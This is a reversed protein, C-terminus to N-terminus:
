KLSQRLSEEMATIFSQTDKESEAPVFVGRREVFKGNKTVIIGYTTGKRGTFLPDGDAHELSWEYGKPAKGLTYEM